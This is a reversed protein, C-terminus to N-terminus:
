IQINYNTISRFVHYGSVSAGITGAGPFISDGCLWANKLPTRHSLSYFLSNHRTQPFGGVMGRPRHTFREWTKPSGSLKYIIQDEITPIAIQTRNFIKQELQLKNEKYNEMNFWRNVDTHTSITLTRFGNPARLTDGKKSLSLFIHEGDSLKNEQSIVQQFLPLKDLSQDEKLALYMTFAGWTPTSANKRYKLPLQEFLAPNLIERLSHIPVNFIVHSGHWTDGKQDSLVWENGKKNVNVVKRRKLAQGGKEKIHHVLLEAIVYLGGEVYFAGEHYIDLALAGLICQCHKSTTQMSDILQGDIYQTFLHDEEFGCSRLLSLLTQNIYPFLKLSSPSLSQLLFTWERMNQPPITPLKIMLKKVENSLKWIKKYFAEIALKDRQFHSKLNNLHELRDQLVQIQMKNEIHVTMIHDLRQSTVSLNLYDIVRKHIGGKEFGMGLTAGVPFLFGKRSFKGACGGWENSGELVTIDYGNEALLAGATLGGIGGGVVLIKEGM